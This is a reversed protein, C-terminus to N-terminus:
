TMSSTSTPNGARAGRRWRRSRSWWWADTGRNNYQGLLNVGAECKAPDFATITGPIATHVGDTFEQITGKIQQVFEQMM